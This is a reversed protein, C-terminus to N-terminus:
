VNLENNEDQEMEKELFEDANFVTFRKLSERFLRSEDEEFVFYQSGKPGYQGGVFFVQTRDITDTSVDRVCTVNDLNILTGFINVFNPM